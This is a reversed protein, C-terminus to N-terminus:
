KVGRGCIYAYGIGYYAAANDLEGAKHWLELAKTYDLPLGEEGENYNCGLNYIANPDNMETRIKVTEFWEEDTPIPTRCFPCIDDNKRTIRSQFAHLCGICIVKGCCAMYTRGMGLLPLRLMCIPCDELQPPQKFLKEDHIEKV